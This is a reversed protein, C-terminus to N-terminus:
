PFAKIRFNYFFWYLTFLIIAFILLYMSLDINSKYFGEDILDTLVRDFDNAEEVRFFLGDTNFSLAKLFDIDAKSIFDINSIYESLFDIVELKMADTVKDQTEYITDFALSWVNKDKRWIKYGM